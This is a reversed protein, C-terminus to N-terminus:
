SWWSKTYIKIEFPNMEREVNAKIQAENETSINPLAINKRSQRKAHISELKFDFNVFSSSTLVITECSVNVWCKVFGNNTQTVSKRLQRRRVTDNRGTIQNGHSICKVPCFKFNLLNFQHLSNSIFDLIKYCIM